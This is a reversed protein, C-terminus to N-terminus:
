TIAQPSLSDQKKRLVHLKAQELYPHGMATSSRDAVEIRSKPEQPSLVAM